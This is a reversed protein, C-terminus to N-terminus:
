APEIRPECRIASKVSRALFCERHAERHLDHIAAADPLRAGSFRVRPRLVVETVALAGSADPALAGVAADEFREVTFGRKAALSLFWLMHCSALAAVFAEEPDVAAPDSLPVPVIHPPSSAPVVAGGDFRWSHARPYRGDTFPADRRGWSVVSDCAIV